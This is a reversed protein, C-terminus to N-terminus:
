GEGQMAPELVRLELEGIRLMDGEGLETRDCRVGNVFIGNMSGLDRVFLVPGDFGIEAHRRSLTPECLCFEAESGRGIVLRQPGVPWELGRYFGNTVQVRAGPSGSNRKAPPSKALDKAGAGGPRCFVPFRRVDEPDAHRAIM